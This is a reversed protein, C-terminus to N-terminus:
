ISNVDRFVMGTEWNMFWFTRSEGKIKTTTGFPPSGIGVISSDWKKWSNSIDINHEGIMDDWKQYKEELVIRKIENHTIRWKNYFHPGSLSCADGGNIRLHSKFSKDYESVSSEYYALDSLRLRLVFDDDEFGGGLFRQDWWGITRFLEKSIGMFAVSWCTSVAFGKELLEIILLVESVKPIVRDNILIVFETSSTCVTENVMESYSDYSEQHRNYRNNWHVKLYNDLPKLLKIQRDMVDQLGTHLAITIENIKVGM